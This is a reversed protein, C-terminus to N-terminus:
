VEPDPEVVLSGKPVLRLRAVHGNARSRNFDVRTALWDGRVGTLEDDIAVMGNITWRRGGQAFGQVTAEYTEFDAMARALERRARQTAAQPTRARPDHLYRPRPLYVETVRPHALGDNLVQSRHRADEIADAGAHGFVTVDTPVDTADLDRFGELINGTWSGDRQRRRTLRQVVPADYAPRDIVLGVTDGYPACYLLYGHRRALADLFSWVREGPRPKTRDIVQRRRARSSASPPRTGPRVGAQIERAAAANAGVTVPIGLPALARTCVDELTADRLSLAPDVDAVLAAALADRGSLTLPAGARSGGDRIREITGRLQPAGDIALTIPAYVKAEARVRAWAAADATRWLTVTWPSGPRLLDLTVSVEDWSTVELGETGLRLAVRHSTAM